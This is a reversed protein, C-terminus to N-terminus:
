GAPVTLLLMLFAAVGARGCAHCHRRRTSRARSPEDFYIVKIIRLYYYAGVVSALVGLTAFLVLGADVAARFVYLKSFFGALPPIGALSFM